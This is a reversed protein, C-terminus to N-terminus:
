LPYPACVWLGCVVEQEVYNKASQRNDKIDDKAGLLTAYLVGINFCIIGVWIILGYSVQKKESLEDPTM